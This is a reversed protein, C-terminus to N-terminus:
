AGRRGPSLGPWWAYVALVIGFLLFAGLHWFRAADVAPESALRVHEPTGAVYRIRVEDGTELGADFRPEGSTVAGDLEARVPQGDATTYGVYVQAGGDEEVRDVVIGDAEVGNAIRLYRRQWPKRFLLPMTM